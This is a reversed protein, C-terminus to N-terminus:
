RRDEDRLDARDLFQLEVGHRAAARQWPTVNSPFDGEFVLIRDGPRWRISWAIDLVGASTNPVLAVDDASAGLLAALRGRLRDRQEMWEPWASVGRRAYSELASGIADRVPRSPPSMAAHNFYVRSELDTFLSRDGLM